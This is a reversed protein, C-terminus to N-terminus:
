TKGAMAEAGMTASCHKPWGISLYRACDETTARQTKGCQACTLTAGNPFAASAMSRSVGVIKKAQGIISDFDDIM